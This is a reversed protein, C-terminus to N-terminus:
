SRNVSDRSQNRSSRFRLVVVSVKAVKSVQSAQIELDELDAQTFELDDGWDEDEEGETKRKKPPPADLISLFSKQFNLFKRSSKIKGFNRM